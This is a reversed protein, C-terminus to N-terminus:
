RGHGQEDQVEEVLVDHLPQRAWCAKKKMNGEDMGEMEAMLCEIQEHRKVQAETLSDESAEVAQGTTKPKGKTDATAPKKNVSAPAAAPRKMGM